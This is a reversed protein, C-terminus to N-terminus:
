SVRRPGLEPKKRSTGLDGEPREKRQLRSRVGVVARKVQGDTLSKRGSGRERNMELGSHPDTWAALIKMETSSATKPYRNDYRM